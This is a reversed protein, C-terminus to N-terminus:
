PASRLSPLVDEAFRTLGDAQNGDVLVNFTDFGMQKMRELARRMVQRPDGEYPEGDPRCPVYDPLLVWARILRLEM